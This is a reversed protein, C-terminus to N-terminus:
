KGFTYKWTVSENGNSDNSTLSGIVEIYGKGVCIDSKEM